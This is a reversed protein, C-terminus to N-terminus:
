EPESRASVYKGLFDATIDVGLVNEAAHYQRYVRFSWLDCIIEYKKEQICDVFRM